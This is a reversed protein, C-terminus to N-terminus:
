KGAMNVITFIVPHNIALIINMTEIFAPIIVLMLSLCIFLGVSLVLYKM